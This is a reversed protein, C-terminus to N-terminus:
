LGHKLCFESVDQKRIEDEDVKESEIKKTEKIEDVRQSEVITILPYIPIGYIPIGLSAKKFDPRIEASYRKALDEYDIPIDATQSQSKIEHLDSTNTSM